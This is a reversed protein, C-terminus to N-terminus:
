LTRVFGSIIRRAPIGVHATCGVKCCFEWSETKRCTECGLFPGSVAWVMATGRLRVGRYHGMIIICVIFVSSGRGKGHGLAVLHCWAHVKGAWHTGLAVASVPPGLGARPASCISAGEGGDRM